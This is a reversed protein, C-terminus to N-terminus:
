DSGMQRRKGRWSEELERAARSALPHRTAEYCRSRWSLVSLRWPVYPELPSLAEVCVQELPLQGAAVLMSDIRMEDGLHAVFPEKIAAYVRAAMAPNILAMDAALEITHRMLAPWPWPDIRHREFAAELASVAEDVKGQRVLLRALIADAEVPHTARLREVYRTANADGADALMEGLIALETPDEPERQQSRWTSVAEPWRGALYEAQALARARQALNLGTPTQGSETESTRFTIRRDDVRDWMVDGGIVPRGEGRAKATALRARTSAEPAM